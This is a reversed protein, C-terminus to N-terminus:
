PLEALGLRLDLVVIEFKSAVRRPVHTEARNLADQLSPPETALDTRFLLWPERGDLARAWRGNLKVALDHVPRGLAVAVPGPVM